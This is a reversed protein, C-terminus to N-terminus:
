KGAQGRGIREDTRYAGVVPRVAWKLYAGLTVAAAGGAM